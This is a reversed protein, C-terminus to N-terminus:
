ILRKAHITTFELTRHNVRYVHNSLRDQPEVQTHNVDWVMELLTDEVEERTQNKFGSVPVFLLEHVSSPLIYFDEGIKRVVEKLISDVCIMGSGYTQSDSTLTYIKMCNDDTKINLINDLSDFVYSYRLINISDVLNHDTIHFQEMSEDTVYMMTRDHYDGIIVAFVVSVGYLGKMTLSHVGEPIKMSSLLIPFVNDLIFEKTMKM